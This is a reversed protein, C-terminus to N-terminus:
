LSRITKEVKSDKMQIKNHMPWVIDLNRENIRWYKNTEIRITWDITLSNKSEKSVMINRTPAGKKSLNKRLNYLKKINLEKNLKKKKTM